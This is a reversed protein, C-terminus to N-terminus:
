GILRGKGFNEDGPVSPIEGFYIRRYDKERTIPPLVSTLSISWASTM